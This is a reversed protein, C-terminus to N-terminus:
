AHTKTKRLRGSRLRFRQGSGVSAGAFAELNEIGRLGPLDESQKRMASTQREMDTTIQILRYGAIAVILLWCGALFLWYRTDLLWCGSALIWCGATLICFFGWM